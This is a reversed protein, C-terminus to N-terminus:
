GRRKPHRLVARCERNYELIRPDGDDPPLKVRLACRQEVAFSVQRRREGAFFDYTGETLEADRSKRSVRLVQGGAQAPEFGEDGDRPGRDVGMAIRM